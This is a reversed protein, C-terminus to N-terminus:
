FDLDLDALLAEDETNFIAKDAKAQAPKYNMMENWLEKFFPWYIAVSAGISHRLRYYDGTGM